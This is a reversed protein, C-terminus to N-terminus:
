IARIRPAIAKFAFRRMASRLVANQAAKAKQM